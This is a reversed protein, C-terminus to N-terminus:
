CFLIVVESPDWDAGQQAAPTANTNCWFTCCSSLLVMHHLEVSM